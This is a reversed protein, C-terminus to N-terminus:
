LFSIMTAVRLVAVTGELAAPSVSSFPSIMFLSHVLVGFTTIGFCALTLSGVVCFFLSCVASMTLETATPRTNLQAEM